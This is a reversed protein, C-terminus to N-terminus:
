EPRLPRHRPLERHPAEPRAPRGLPTWAAGTVPDHQLGRRLALVEDSGPGGPTAFVTAVGAQRGSIMGQSKDNEHFLFRPECEGISQDFASVIM